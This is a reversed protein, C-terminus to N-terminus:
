EVNQVQERMKEMEHKCCVVWQSIKADQAKAGLTNIERNMEQLIFDLKRGVPAKEKLIERFHELHSKLRQIEESVDTRDVYHAVEQALRWEDPNQQTLKAIREHLRTQYDQILRPIMEEVRQVYDAVLDLRTLFEKKLGEGEKERMKEVSQFIKTLTSKFVGLSKVVDEEEDQVVIVQPLSILTEPTPPHSYKLRRGLDKLIKLYRNLQTEDIKIGSRHNSSMERVFIDIRGRDFNKKAFESLEAELPYFRGPLRLNVECFRHNLTKVEIRIRSSKWRFEGRGFGTMSKMSLVEKKSHIFKEGV